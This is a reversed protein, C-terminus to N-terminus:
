PSPARSAGDAAPAAVAPTSAAPTSVAPEEAVDPPAGVVFAPAQELPLYWRMLAIIAVAAGLVNLLDLVRVDFIRSCLLAAAVGMTVVAAPHGEPPRATLVLALPM